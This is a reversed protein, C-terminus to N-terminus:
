TSLREGALIMHEPPVGISDACAILDPQHSQLFQIVAGLVAPDGARARLDAPDLGTLALLRDARRDDQLTWVLAKLALQTAGDDDITEPQRM